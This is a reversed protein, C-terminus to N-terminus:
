HEPAVSVDSEPAGRGVINGSMAARDAGRVVMATTDDCLLKNNEFVVNDSKRWDAHVCIPHREFLNDRIVLNRPAGIQKHPTAVLGAITSDRVTNGVVIADAVVQIAEGCRSLVNHRVVNPKDGGGYVFICPYERGDVTDHIRNHQVLNGGSGPKIEIGDNGGDSTARLHHIYNFEFVSDTVTCKAHNCGVYFGEGTTSGRSARGTHHIHNHRFTLRTADGSNITVGANDTGSVENHEFVIDSGGIFRVGIDGGYFRLGRIIVHASDVIEINNQTRRTANPRTLTPTAGDAARIVIPQEATGRVTIRRACSQLYQGDHVILEDGPELANALKEFPEDCDGTADRPRAEYVTALAAHSVALLLAFASVKVKSSRM